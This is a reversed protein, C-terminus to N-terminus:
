IEGEKLIAHASELMLRSAVANGDAFKARIQMKVPKDETFRLTQAQSLHLVIQKPALQLAEKACELVTKGAQQFTVYIVEADSLDIDTKFRITPTTGRIM